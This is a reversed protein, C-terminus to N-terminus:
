GRNEIKENNSEESSRKHLRSGNWIKGGIGV